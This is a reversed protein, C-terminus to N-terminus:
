VLAPPARLLGASPTYHDILTECIRIQDYSQDKDSLLQDYILIYIPVFYQYAITIPRNSLSDFPDEEHCEHERAQKELACEEAMHEESEPCLHELEHDMICCEHLHCSFAGLGGIVALMLMLVTVIKRYIGM